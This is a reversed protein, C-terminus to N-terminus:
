ATASFPEVTYMGPASLRANGAKVVLGLTLRTGKEGMGLHRAIEALSHEDHPKSQLYQLARDIARVKPEAAERAPTSSPLAKPADPMSAKAAKKAKKKAKKAPMGAGTNNLIGKPYWGALGWQTGLKVISANKAKRARDLVAHVIGIFNGSTSEMGGKQLAEAIERSTQKKKVIELYIRAAEPISKGLFAGAPVENGYISSSASSSGGMPVDSGVGLMGLSMASRLTAITAEIASKKAELDAIIAAYDLSQTSM